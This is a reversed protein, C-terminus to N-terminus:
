INIFPEFSELEELTLNLPKLEDLSFYIDPVQISIDELKNLILYCEKAKDDKIKYGGKENIIPNGNEDREFYNECNLKLQEQFVEQEPQIQKIIKILKYQTEVDFNKNKLRNFLEIIPYIQKRKILMTDCREQLYTM